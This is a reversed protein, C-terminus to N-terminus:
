KHGGELAACRGQRGLGDVVAEVADAVVVRRYISVSAALNSECLLPRCGTRVELVCVERCFSRNLM